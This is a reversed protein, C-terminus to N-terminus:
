DFAGVGLFLAYDSKKDIILLPYSWMIGLESYGNYFYIKSDYFSVYLSILQWLKDIRKLGNNFNEPCDNNPQNTKILDILKEKAERIHIENVLEHRYMDGIFPKLLDGILKDEGRLSIPKVTFYVIYNLAVFYSSLENSLNQIIADINDVSQKRM